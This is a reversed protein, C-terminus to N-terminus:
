ESNTNLREFHYRGHKLSSPGLRAFKFMLYLEIILFITYFASIIVISFWLQERTLESHALSTPLIAEVAWPQRGYEAM